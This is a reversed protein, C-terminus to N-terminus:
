LQARIQNALRPQTLQIEFHAMANSLARRSAALQLRAPLIEVTARDCSQLFKGALAIAVTHKVRSSPNTDVCIRHQHDPVKDSAIYSRAATRKDLPEHPRFRDSM